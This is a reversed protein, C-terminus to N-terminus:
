FAIAIGYQYALVRMVTWAYQKRLSLPDGPNRGSIEVLIGPVGLDRGVKRILSNATPEPFQRWPTGVSNSPRIHNLESLIRSAVRNAESQRTRVLTNGLGGVFGDHFDIVFALDPQSRILDWIERAILYTPQKGVPFMRNFDVNHLASSPRNLGRRNQNCAIQNFAPVMVIRGRSITIGRDIADAMALHGSKENGHICGVFVLTPGPNPSEYTIVKSEFPTGTRLSSERVITPGAYPSSQEVGCVFYGGRAELDKNLAERTRPGFEGDVYLGRSAQYARVARTTLPGYDGDILGNYFGLANLSRQLAEVQEGQFGMVLYQCEDFFFQLASPNHGPEGPGPEGPDGPGPEVGCDTEAVIIQTLLWVGNDLVLTAQGSASCDVDNGAADTYQAAVWGQVYATDGEIRIDVIGIELDHVDVGPWLSELQSMVAMQSMPAVPVDIQRGAFQIRMNPAVHRLLAAADKEGAAQALQHLTMTIEANRDTGEFNSLGMLACGSALFAVM